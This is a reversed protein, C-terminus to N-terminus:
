DKVAIISFAPINDEITVLVELRKVKLLYASPLPVSQWSITELISKLEESESIIEIRGMLGTSTYQLLVIALSGNFNKLEKNMFTISLLSDIVSTVNNAFARAHFVAMREYVHSLMNNQTQKSEAEKLADLVHENEQAQPQLNEKNESAAEPLIETQAADLPTAEIDESIKMPESKINNKLLVEKTETLADGAVIDVSWNSTPMLASRTSIV